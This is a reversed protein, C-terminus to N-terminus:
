NPSTKHTKAPIEGRFPNDQPTELKMELEVIRNETLKLKAKIAELDERASALQKIQAEVPDLNIEPEEVHVQTLKRHRRFLLRPLIYPASILCVVSSWAIRVPLFAVTCYYGEMPSHLWMSTMELEYRKMLNSLPFLLNARLTGFENLLIVKESQNAVFLGLAIYGVAALACYLFLM